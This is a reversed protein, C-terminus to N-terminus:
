TQVTMLRIRVPGPDGAEAQLRLHIMAPGGSADVIEQRAVIRSSAFAMVMRDGGGDLTLTASLRDHLSAARAADNALLRIGLRAVLRGPTILQPTDAALAVHARMGQRAFEVELGGLFLPSLARGGPPRLGLGDPPAALKMAPQMAPLGSLSLTGGRRREAGLCDVAMLMGGDGGPFLRLRQIRLGSHLQWSDRDALRRIFALSGAEDGGETQLRATAAAGQGSGPGSGVWSGGIVLPLFRRLSVADATLSFRGEVHTRVLRQPAADKDPVLAQRSAYQGIVQFDEATLRLREFPGAPRNWSPEVAIGCAYDRATRM